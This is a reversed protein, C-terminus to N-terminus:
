KCVVIVALFVVANYTNPDKLESIPLNHSAPSAGISEYDAETVVILHGSLNYRILGGALAETEEWAVDGLWLVDYGIGIGFTMIFIVGAVIYAM